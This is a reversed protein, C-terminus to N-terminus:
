QNSDLRARKGRERGASEMASSLRSGSWAFSIMQMSTSNAACGADNRLGVTTHNNQEPPIAMTGTDITLVCMRPQPPGINERHRQAPIWCCHEGWKKFDSLVPTM